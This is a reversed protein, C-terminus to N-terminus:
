KVKAKFRPLREFFEHLFLASLILLTGSLVKLTLQEHNVVYGLLLALVPSILNILSVRTPTLHTLLYYYFIFGLTTAIVGLYLISAINILSLTTPLQGKDLILWTLLYLPLAILLGGTVQSLAPLKASIRKIWVASTAQICTSILLAGIGLAANLSIQLASGFIIILGGTGMGYSLLKGITLSREGLFLASLLATMLPVLGSVVSIWGSPMFQAAWYVSIMCGYIQLAVACYTLIAKRHWAIPKRMIAIFVLLCTTGIAMRSTVSFIFGPGEGSWKIALPTTSWLLVVSIYTLLIRMAASKIKIRAYNTRSQRM